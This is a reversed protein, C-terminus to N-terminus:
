ALHANVWPLNVHFQSALAFTMLSPIIIAGRTPAKETITFVSPDNAARIEVCFKEGHQTTHQTATHHWQAAATKSSVASATKDNNWKVSKSEAKTFILSFCFSFTQSQEKYSKINLLLMDM